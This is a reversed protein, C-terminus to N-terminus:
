AADGSRGGADLLWVYHARLEAAVEDPDKLELIEERARAGIARAREPDALLAATAAGMGRADGHPVLLGTEGDRILEGQWEWDYAVVPTGSLLAELLARGAIPALVVSAHHLAGAVWTQDRAGVFRIHGDLGLETARAELAERVSGEGVIVGALEPHDRRAEVLADLVDEPHKAPELRSVCIAYPREGVDARVDVREELGALHMPHIGAGRHIRKLRAPDVGNALAFGANNESAVLVMDLRPFVFGDIRKEVSRRRLLRPYAVTGSLEFLADHNANVALVLPLGAARAVAYGLAGLYYPDAITVVAVPERRILRSLVRLVAIQGLVFNTVPLGSLSRFRAVKGEVMTNGADLQTLEVPGVGAGPPDDPSAGVLPHVVWAHHFWGGLDRALVIHEMQRERLVPLSYACDLFLLGRRGDARRRRAVALRALMLPLALSAAFAV